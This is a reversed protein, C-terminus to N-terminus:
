GHGGGLSMFVSYPCGDALSDNDCDAKGEGHGLQAHHLQNFFAQPLAWRGPECSM